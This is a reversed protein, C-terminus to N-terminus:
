RNPEADAETNARELVRIFNSKFDLVYIRSADKNIAITINSCTTALRTARTFRDVGVYGILELFKGDLSYRKIRGLGSEATYLEGKPGFCLNMPNCCSGFGEIDKRDKNGWKSLIEGNRDYKLVRHRANEAVYLVGDKAVIDLRQCCGRLDEAIINPDSLERDFRVICSKSGLTGKSGVCLFVDRKTATIGSPKGTPLDNGDTDVTKLVKGTEDLKAVKGPGATYITGDPCAHIANPSFELKWKALPKGAPSIKRIENSNSDCALLNGERDMCFTALNEFEIQPTLGISEGEEHTPSPLDASTTEVESYLLTPSLLITITLLAYRLRINM